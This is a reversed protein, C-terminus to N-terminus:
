ARARGHLAPDGGAHQRGAVGPRQQRDLVGVQLVPERLPHDGLADADAAQLLDDGDAVGARGRRPGAPALRHGRTQGVDGLPERVPELGPHLDVETLDLPLIVTSNPESSSRCRITSTISGRLRSSRGIQACARASRRDIAEILSLRKTSLAVQSRRADDKRRRPPAACGSAREAADLEAAEGLTPASGGHRAPLWWSGPPQEDAPYDAIADDLMSSMVAHLEATEAVPDDGTPHMPAGVWISITKGRSFDKPHDKTMMRQTGWLIVPVLPVGAAAAIRVAGTKFEKLEM